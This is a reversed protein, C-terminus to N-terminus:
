KAPYNFNYNITVNSHPFHMMPLFQRNTSSNVNQNFTQIQTKTTPPTESKNQVSPVLQMDNNSATNIQTETTELFKLLADDTDQEEDFPFLDVINFNIQPQPNTPNQVSPAPLKSITASPPQKHKPVNITDSLVEFMEKHKNKPCKDAYEKITAESKHSSIAMIHRAEFGSDSLTSIVTKRISHNTYIKSLKANTSLNSMFKNITDNGVVQKDYWLPNSM